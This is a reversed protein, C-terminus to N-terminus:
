SGPTDFVGIRATRFPPESFFTGQEKLSSTLHQRSPNMLYYRACVFHDETQLLFQYVTHMQHPVCEREQAGNVCCAQTSMELFTSVCFM